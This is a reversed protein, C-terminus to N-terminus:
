LTQLTDQIAAFESGAPGARKMCVAFRTFFSSQNSATHTNRTDMIPAVTMARGTSLPVAGVGKSDKPVTVTYLSQGARRRKYFKGAVQQRM